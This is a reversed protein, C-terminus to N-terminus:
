SPSPLPHPPFPPCLPFFPEAPNVGCAVVVLLNHCLTIKNTEQKKRELENTDTHTYTGLPTNLPGLGTRGHISQSDLDKGIETFTSPKYGFRLKTSFRTNIIGVVLFYGPLCCGIFRLYYYVIIRHVSCTAITAATPSHAPSAHHAPAPLVEARWLCVSM